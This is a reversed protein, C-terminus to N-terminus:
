GLIDTIWSSAATHGVVTELDERRPLSSQAGSRAAAAAGAAAGLTAATALQAGRTLGVALAGVFADGAATADVAAVPYAPISRVGNGDALLAGAAGLTVIAARAGRALLDRAALEAEKLSGVARGTLISAEIENVVLVDISRLLAEDLESEVPAANLVVRTGRAVALEVAADVASRPVELQLLMLSDPKLWATARRADAVGVRSNAGPAVAIMNQGGQEVLILAAGTPAAADREVGATDVGDGALSTLLMEAFADVGVRGVMHVACGLRAAAVAQNAGKGGAFTALRDGLITEAPRPLRPLQVVLDANLSGLVVIESM